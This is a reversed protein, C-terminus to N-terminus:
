TTFFTLGHPHLWASSKCYFVPADHGRNYSTCAQLCSPIHHMESSTRTSSCLYVCAAHSNCPCIIQSGICGDHCAAYLSLYTGRSTNIWTSSSGSLYHENRPFVPQWEQHSCSGWSRVLQSLHPGRTLHRISMNHTIALCYITAAM